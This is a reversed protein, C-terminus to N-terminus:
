DYSQTSCMLSGPCVSTQGNSHSQPHCPWCCGFLTSHVISWARYFLTAPVQFSPDWLRSNYDLGHFRWTVPRHLVEFIHLLTHPISVSLFRNNNRTHTLSHNIPVLCLKCLAGSNVSVSCGVITTLSPVQERLLPILQSYSDAYASSVFVIALTPRVATFEALIQSVCAAIADPLRSNRTKSINTSWFLTPASPLNVTLDEVAAHPTAASIEPHSSPQSGEAARPTFFAKRHHQLLRHSQVLGRAQGHLMPRRCLATVSHSNPNNKSLSLRQVGMSLAM